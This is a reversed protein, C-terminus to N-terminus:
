EEWELTVTFIRGTLNKHTLWGENSCLRYGDLSQHFTVGTLSVSKKEPKREITWDNDLLVEDSWLSIFSGKLTAGIDYEKVIRNGQKNEVIEGCKMQSLAELLYM